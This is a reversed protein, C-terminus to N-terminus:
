SKNKSKCSIKLFSKYIINIGSLTISGVACVLGAILSNMPFLGNILIYLVQIIFIALNFVIFSDILRIKWSNNEKYSSLFTKIIEQLSSMQEVDDFNIIDNLVDKM